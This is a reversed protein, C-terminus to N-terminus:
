NSPGRTNKEACNKSRTEEGAGRVLGVRRDPRACGASGGVRSEGSKRTSHKQRQSPQTHLSPKATTAGMLEPPRSLNPTAPTPFASTPRAPPHFSCTPHSPCSPHSGRSPRPESSHPTWYIAALQEDKNGKSINTNMFMLQTCYAVRRFERTPVGNGGALANSATEPNCGGPGQVGGRGM